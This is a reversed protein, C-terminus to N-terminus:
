RIDTTQEGAPVWVEIEQGAVLTRRKTYQAEESIQIQLTGASVDHKEYVGGTKVHYGQATYNHNQVESTEVQRKAQYNSVSKKGRGLAAVYASTDTFFTGPSKGTRVIFQTNITPTGALFITNSVLSSLLFSIMMLGFVKLYYHM